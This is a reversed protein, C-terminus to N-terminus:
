DIATVVCVCSLLAIPFVTKLAECQNSETVLYACCFFVDWLSAFKIVSMKFILSNVIADIDLLGNHLM